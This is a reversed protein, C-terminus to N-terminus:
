IAYIKIPQAVKRWDNAVTGIASLVNDERM